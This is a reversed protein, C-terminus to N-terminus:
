APFGSSSPAACSGAGRIEGLRNGNVPIEINPHTWAIARTPRARSIKTQLSDAVGAKEEGLAHQVDDAAVESDLAFDISRRQDVANYSRM